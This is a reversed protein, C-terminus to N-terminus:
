VVCLQTIYSSAESKPATVIVAAAATLDDGVV